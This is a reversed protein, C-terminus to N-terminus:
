REFELDLAGQETFARRAERQIDSMQVDGHCCSIIQNNKYKLNKERKKKKRLEERFSSQSNESLLSLARHGEGEGLGPM